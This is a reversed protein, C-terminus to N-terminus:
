INIQVSPQQMALLTIDKKESLRHVSILLYERCTEKVTTHPRKLYLLSFAIFFYVFLFLVKNLM